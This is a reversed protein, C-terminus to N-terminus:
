RLVVPRLPRVTQRAGVQTGECGRASARTACRHENMSDLMGSSSVCARQFGSRTNTTSGGSKQAGATSHKAFSSPMLDHSCMWSKSTSAANPRPRTRPAPTRRTASDSSRHSSALNSRTDVMEAAM